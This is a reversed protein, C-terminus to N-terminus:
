SLGAYQWYATNIAEGWLLALWGAIALFPGFSIADGRQQRSLVIMLIGSLAGLLSSFIVIFPLMQWGTWAGLAALLKFDGYGMGEKGTILKFLWYVSWLCLYGGIAGWLASSLSTFLAFYNVALGCWLLPLTLDDPLLQQESDIFSLALLTASFGIAALTIAASPFFNWAVAACLLACLLEVAPYRWPIRESCHSCRGRLLAFSLLPINHRVAITSRCHPCHSAPRALNYPTSLMATVPNSNESPQQWQAALMHPLRHIVVNLFSGILLGLLSFFAIFTTPQQLLIQLSAALTPM